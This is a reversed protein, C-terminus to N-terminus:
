LADLYLSKRPIFLSPSGSTRSKAGSATFETDAGLPTPFLEINSANANAMRPLM